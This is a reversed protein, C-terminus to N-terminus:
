RYDVYQGMGYDERTYEDVLPLMTKPRGIPKTSPTFPEKFRKSTAELTRQKKSIAPRQERVDEATMFTLEQQQRDSEGMQKSFIDEATMSFRAKSEKFKQAILKQQLGEAMQKNTGGWDELDETGLFNKLERRKKGASVYPKMWEEVNSALQNQYYPAQTDFYFMDEITEPDENSIGIKTAITNFNQALKSLTTNRIFDQDIAVHTGIGHSETPDITTAGEVQEEMVGEPRMFTAVPVVNSINDFPNTAQVRNLLDNTAGKQILSGSQAMQRRLAEVQQVLENYQQTPPPPFAVSSGQLTIGISSPQRAIPTARPRSQRKPKNTDGVKVSVKTVQTQKQKQKQKQKKPM